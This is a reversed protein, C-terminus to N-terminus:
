KHVQADLANHNPFPPSENDSNCSLRGLMIVCRLLSFQCNVCTKNVDEYKLQLRMEAGVVSKLPHEM